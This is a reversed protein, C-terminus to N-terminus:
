RKGVISGPLMYEGRNCLLAQHGFHEEHKRAAVVLGIFWTRDEFVIEQEVRCEIHASCEAISVAQVKGSAESHLGTKRFKDENRGSIAGCIRVQDILNGAPVNIVFEREEKILGYSYRSHAVAIGIRLPKFTFYAIQGITIINSRTTVLVIPFPPLMGLVGSQTLPDITQKNM